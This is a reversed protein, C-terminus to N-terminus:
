GGNTSCREGFSHLDHLGNAQSFPRQGTLLDPSIFLLRQIIEMDTVAKLETRTMNLLTSTPRELDM